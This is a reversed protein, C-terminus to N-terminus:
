WVRMTRYAEAFPAGIREGTHADMEKLWTLSEEGKPFQSIHAM